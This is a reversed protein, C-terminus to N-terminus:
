NFLFTVLFIISLNSDLLYPIHNDEYFKKSSPSNCLAVIKKLGLRNLCITCITLNDLDSKSAAILYNYDVWTVLYSMDKILICNLPKDKLYEKVIEFDSESTYLLVNEKTDLSLSNDIDTLHSVNNFVIDILRYGLFFIVMMSIVVIFDM